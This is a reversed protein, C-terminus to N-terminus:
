LELQAGLMLQWITMSDQGEVVVETEPDTVPAYGEVSFRGHTLRGELRLSWKRDVAQEYGFSIRGALNQQALEDERAPSVGLLSVGLGLFPASPQNVLRAEMGLFVEYIGFSDYTFVGGVQGVSSEAAVGLDAWMFDAKLSLWSGVRRGMGMGLALGSDLKAYFDSTPFPSGPWHVPYGNVTEARFLDSGGALGAGFFLFWNAPRPREAATEDDPLITEEKPVPTASHRGTDSRPRDQAAAASALVHLALLCAFACLLIKSPMTRETNKRGIRIV